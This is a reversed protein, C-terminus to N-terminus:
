VLNILMFLMNIFIALNSIFVDKKFTYLNGLNAILM